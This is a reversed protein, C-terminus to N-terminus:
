SRRCALFAPLSAPDPWAHASLRRARAGGHVGVPGPRQALVGAKGGGLVGVGEVLLAQLAALLAKGDGEVQRGVPAVIGVMRPDDAVDALRADRDIGDLVHLDQEVADREVLHADGHGHVPGHQRHEGAVDHGGLLLPHALFLEGAGDLVVDELLEHDAVGVDIRRRGRHADHGVDDGM